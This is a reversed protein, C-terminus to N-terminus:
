PTSFVLQFFCKEAHPEPVMLDFTVERRDNTATGLILEFEGQQWDMLNPSSRISGSWCGDHLTGNPQIMALPLRTKLQIGEESVNLSVRLRRQSEADLPDSGGLYEEFNTLGDDDPDEESPPNTQGVQIGLGHRYLWGNYACASRALQIEREKEKHFYRASMQVLAQEVEEAPADPNRALYTAALGAVLACSFSTGNGIGHGTRVNEGPAYLSIISGDDRNTQSSIPNLQPLTGKENFAGLATAGVTIVGARHGHKAPVYDAVQGPVKLNGDNGASLIIPIGDSTTQMIANNLSLAGIGEVGSSAIVILAPVGPHNDLADLRAAHIGELLYSLYTFGSQDDAGTYIDV